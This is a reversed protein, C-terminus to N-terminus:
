CHSDRLLELGDNAFPPNFAPQGAPTDPREARQRELKQDESRDPEM